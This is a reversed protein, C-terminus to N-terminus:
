INRHIQKMVKRKNKELYVDETNSLALLIPYDNWDEFSISKLIVGAFLSSFFYSWFIVTM